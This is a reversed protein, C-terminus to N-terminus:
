VNNNPYSAPYTPYLVLNNVSVNDLTNIHSVEDPYSPNYYTLLASLTLFDDPLYITHIDTVTDYIKESTSHM